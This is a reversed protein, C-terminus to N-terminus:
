STVYLSPSKTHTNVGTRVTPKDSFNNFLYKPGQHVFVDEHGSGDVAELFGWGKAVDFWKCRGRHQTQEEHDSTRRMDQRTSSINLM